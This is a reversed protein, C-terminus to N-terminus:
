LHTFIGAILIDSMHSIVSCPFVYRYCAKLLEHRRKRCASVVEVIARKPTRLYPRAIVESLREAAQELESQLLDFVAKTHLVDVNRNKDNGEAEEAVAMALYFGFAYSGCLIRRAKLLEWVGDEYFKTGKGERPAADGEMASQLIERKRKASHLLPEEMRRSSEHNMYRSYFHAFCNRTRGGLSMRRGREDEVYRNCHLHGGGHNKWTKVCVWCFDHGCQPCRVHNCGETKKMPAQCNPCNRTHTSLWRLSDAIEPGQSQCRALWLKWLGCIVPAHAESSCEWCFFHGAGCDVSHSVQAHAAAAAHLLSQPPLSVARQCGAAPCWRISKNSEVFADVDFKLYRRATEPSVHAEILRKPVESQCEYTPCVVDARAEGKQIRAHLYDRWCRGCFRHGCAMESANDTAPTTQGMLDCCMECLPAEEALEEDVIFSNESFIKPRLGSEYKLQKEHLSAAAEAVAKWEQRCGAHDNKTRFCLVYHEQRYILIM